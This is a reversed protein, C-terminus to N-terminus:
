KETRHQDTGQSRETLMTDLRHLDLIRRVVDPVSIGMEAAKEQLYAIQPKTLAISLKQKPTNM